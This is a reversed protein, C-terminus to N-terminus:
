AWPRKLRVTLTAKTVIAWNSGSAAAARRKCCASQRRLKQQQIYQTVSMGTEQRFRQTLYSPNRQVSAAAEEVRIREYLHEQVYQMCLHVTTSYNAQKLAQVRSAFDM